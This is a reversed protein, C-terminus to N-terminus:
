GCGNLINNVVQLILPLDVKVGSPIGEPCASPQATGLAINVLTLLEDITVQGSNDCDGICPVPTVTATSTTTPTATPTVPTPTATPPGAPTPAPPTSDAEYAGISCHTHGAGPRVFGRQDRGSVPPM